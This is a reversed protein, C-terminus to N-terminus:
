LTQQQFEFNPRVGAQRGGFATDGVSNEWFGALVTNAVGRWGVSHEVCRNRGSFLWCCPLFTHKLHTKSKLSKKSNLV